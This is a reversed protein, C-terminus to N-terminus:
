AAWADPESGADREIDFPARGERARPPEARQLGADNEADFVAHPARASTRTDFAALEV